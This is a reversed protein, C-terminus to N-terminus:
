ALQILAPRGGDVGAGVGARVSAGVGAGVAAGCGTRQGLVQPAQLVEGSQNEFRRRAYLAYTHTGRRIIRGVRQGSSHVASHDRDTCRGRRVTSSTSEAPPPRSRNCRSSLRCRRTPSTGMSRRRRYADGDSAFGPGTASRRVNKPGGYEREISWALAERTGSHQQCVALRAILEVRRPRRAGRQLRAAAVARAARARVRSCRDAMEWTARASQVDYVLSRPWAAAQAYRGPEQPKVALSCRPEVTVIQCRNWTHCQCYLRSGADLLEIM